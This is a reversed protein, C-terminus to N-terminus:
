PYRYSVEVMYLLQVALLINTQSSEKTDLALRISHVAKFKSTQVAHLNADMPNAVALKCDLYCMMANDLAVNAGIYRPISITWNNFCWPTSMATVSADEMDRSMM